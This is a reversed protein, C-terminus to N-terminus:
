AQGLAAQQAFEQISHYGTEMANFLSELQERNNILGKARVVGASDILVAFPLRAVRFTVGLQESLVYPLGQLQQEEIFRLHRQEQGDSALYISLWSRESRQIDKLVPILQKCVPCTPSLFFVLSSSAASAGIQVSGGTLSPLQFVPATDGLKPGSDNVMAGVPSIREFLVGVQRTLAYIVFMMGLVALALVALLFYITIM